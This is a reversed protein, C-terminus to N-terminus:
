FIPLLDSLKYVCGLKKRCYKTLSIYRLLTTLGYILFPDILSTLISLASDRLFILQTNQYVACFASIFYWHFLFVLFTFIFFITLRRRIKDFIEFIRKDNKDKKELAKIEYIHTDTMGLFCLIVEMVHSVILSFALQPIKDAFSSDENEVYKKHMSEHVFFLGNMTMETCILIFFREIKVYFLNYDNWFFFTFLVYHERLLVSWYTKCFGRKDLKCAEDYDLNNLEFNDLKKNEENIKEISKNEDKLSKESKMTIENKKSYVLIDKNEEKEKNNNIRENQYDVISKRKRIKDSKLSENDNFKNKKIKKNKSKTKKILDILKIDDTEKAKEFSNNKIKKSKYKKPPFNGKNKSKIKITRESKMTKTNLNNYTGMFLSIKDTMNYGKQQEEFLIKSVGVKLPTIGKCFYYFLFVVYIILLILTIISGYNHCFIKFNFVLNYCIMVKWNTNKLTSVTSKYANDASIHELDFTVIGSTNVNCECKIYRNDLSYSSYECNDPCLTENVVTSYIFEEREDLLVDTGNESNYPTCIERYFKDNIDFPDYNQEMAQKYIQNIRDSLNVPVYLDFKTDQCISLNLKEHTTPHYVDFQIYIQSLIDSEKELQVVILDDNENLEYSSKLKGECEGLDVYTLNNNQNFESRSEYMQLSDGEPSELSLGKGKHPFTPLIESIMKDLVQFNSLNAFSCNNNLATIYSCKDTIINTQITTPITLLQTTPNIKLETSPIFEEESTSIKPITSIITQITTPITTIITTPLRTSITTPITTIITTPVTTIITTPITTIITTPITTQITTPITTMITTPNTTAITTYITTPITTSVTTVITTPITTLITSPITTYITTPITTIISTPITTSITTPITSLITTPITTTITTPITTIITTPITTIVTTPITTSITTPVTTIITTPITTTITTPLTTIITTPITTLVTTPITTIITTPITTIITTPITTIITTPITTIITTPITLNLCEHTTINLYPYENPCNYMYKFCIRKNDTLNLYFKSNNDDCKVLKGTERDNYYGEPVCNSIYVNQYYWYDYMYQPLCTKCYQDDYTTGFEDCSDCYEHCLKFKLRIVRGYLIKQQFYSRQDSGSPNDIIKSPYTNFEDYVRERVRLRYDLSYYKFTKRIDYNQKLVSQKHLVDGSPILIEEDTSKNYFLMEPPIDFLIVPFELKEYGFINNQIITRNNLFDFISYEHNIDINEFYKSVDIIEDTANAYGFIMLISSKVGKTTSTFILHDNYVNGALELELEYNNDFNEIYERIKMKTYNDFLDILLIYIKRSNDSPMAIFALREDDMKVFENVRTETQFYHDNFTQTLKETCSSVSTIQLVKLKLSDTNLSLYYIFIAYNDRLCFSKAFVTPKECNDCQFDYELQDLTTINNKNQWELNFNYIDIAYKRQWDLFFVVIWSNMIFGSSIRNNYEIEYLDNNIQMNNDDLTFSSFSFKKVMYQAKGDGYRQKLFAVLYEKKGSYTINLLPFRYSFMEAGLFESTPKYKSTGKDLDHLEAYSRSTGLTFLYEEGNANNTVFMNESEYRKCVSGEEYHYEKTGVPDGESNNFFYNGDKKLGFFLRHNNRSYQIVLDGRSNVAFKGARYGHEVFEIIHTNHEDCKVLFIIHCVILIFLLKPFNTNEKM